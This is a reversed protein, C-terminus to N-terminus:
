HCTKGYKRIKYYNYPLPAVFGAVLSIALAMWYWPDSVPVVGGTLFYDTGNEALEMGLMSLFSMSFATQFATKWLFGEKLKLMMTEFLISTVLGSTMALAMTIWMATNPYYTQLFILMGFDGISCGILCNLTNKAARKWSDWQKWFSSSVRTCLEIEHLTIPTSHSGVVAAGRLSKKEMHCNGHSTVPAAAYSKAKMVSEEEFFQTLKKSKTM